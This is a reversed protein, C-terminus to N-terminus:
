SRETKLNYYGWSMMVVELVMAIFFPLSFGELLLGLGRGFAIGGMFFVNSLTAAKWYLPKLIGLIWFIGFALYLGMIAKFVHEVELDLLGIGLLTELAGDPNFGYTLGALIVVTASIGLQLNKM